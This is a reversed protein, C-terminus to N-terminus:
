KNNSNYDRVINARASLSGKPLSKSSKTYKDVEKMKAEREETSMKYSNGAAGAKQSISKTNRNSVQSLAETQALMKDTKEKRKKAKEAAKDKNKAILADYDMRDIYKNIVVQQVSRVVSGAIWYIGMGCPFSFCFFVSMLPMIKNMTKMSNAMTDAAESGSKKDSNASPMLKTNLWQTVGSLLPIMVAALVLLFAGTAIGETIIDMPSNGINLGFFNNYKSIQAYTENIDASLNPFSESLSAWETSSAMNLCDIYTNQVYETVGNVFSENEFQKTYMASNKFGKLIETAGESNMLKNVLPIYVEKIRGVYAPIAYIVRYLAFLIPMQILLQVCSGTPSVGYKDYVAKTEEQQRMLSAQDEKGKYKNRIADLEPSMKASLKSFKQQKITLPLMLVYVIITFLIISLGINPIGIFDLANFIANMILGLFKAIPGLIAGDNQTLLIGQM